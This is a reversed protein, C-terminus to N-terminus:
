KTGGNTKFCQGYAPMGFVLKEPALGGDVWYNLAYNTSAKEGVADNTHPKYQSHHGINLTQVRGIKTGDHDYGLEYAFCFKPNNQRPRTLIRVQNIRGHDM